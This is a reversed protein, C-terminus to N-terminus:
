NSAARFFWAIGQWGQRPASLELLAGVRPVLVRGMDGVDVEIVEPGDVPLQAYLGAVGGQIDHAPPAPADIGFGAHHVAEPAILEGQHRGARGRPRALGQTLQM